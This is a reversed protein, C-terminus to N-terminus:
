VYYTILKSSDSQTGGDVFRLMESRTDQRIAFVTSGSFSSRHSLESSEQGEEGHNERKGHSCGAADIGGGWVPM